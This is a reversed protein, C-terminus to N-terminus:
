YGRDQLIQIIALKLDGNSTTELKRRLTDDDYRDYQEKYREIREMKRKAEHVYAGGVEKAVSGLKDLFGM